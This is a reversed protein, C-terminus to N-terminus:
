PGWRCASGSNRVLAPAVPGFLAYPYLPPQRSAPHSTGYRTDRESARRTRHLLPQLHALRYMPRSETPPGGWVPLRHYRRGPFTRPTTRRPRRRDRSLRRPSPVSWRAHWRGRQSSPKRRRTGPKSQRCLTPLRRSRPRRARRPGQRTPAAAGVRRRSPWSAAARNVGTGSRPVPYLPDPTHPCCSLAQSRRLRPSSRM